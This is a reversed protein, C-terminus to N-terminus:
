EELTFSLKKDTIKEYPALSQEKCYGDGHFTVEVGLIKGLKMIDAKSWDTVDPMLKEGGTYLILKEGSILQDGNATSQKKVKEGDGVVIPQM